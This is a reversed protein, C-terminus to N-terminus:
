PNALLPSDVVALARAGQVYNVRTVGLVTRLREAPVKM